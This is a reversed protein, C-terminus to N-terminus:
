EVEEAKKEFYQKVKEELNDDSNWFPLLSANDDNDIVDCIHKIMIHIMKDQKTLHNLVTNIATKMHHETNNSYYRGYKAFDKLTQIAEELEM